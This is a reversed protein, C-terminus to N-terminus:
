LIPTARNTVSYQYEGPLNGTVTLTSRYLSQAYATFSNGYKENVGISINYPGGDSIIAGNRTWTYDTPPGGM